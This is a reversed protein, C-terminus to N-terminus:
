RAHCGCGADAAALQETLEEVRKALQRNHAAYTRIATELDEVRAATDAVTAPTGDQYGNNAWRCYEDLQDHTTADQARM